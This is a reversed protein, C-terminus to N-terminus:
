LYTIKTVKSNAQTRVKRKTAMRKAYKTLLMEMDTYTKKKKEEKHFWERKQPETSNETSQNTESNLKEIAIGCKPCCFENYDQLLLMPVFRKTDNLCELCFPKRVSKLVLLRAAYKHLKILTDILEDDSPNGALEGFRERLNAIERGIEERFLSRSM